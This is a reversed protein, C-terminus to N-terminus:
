NGNKLEKLVIKPNEDPKLEIFASNLWERCVVNYDTVIFAGHEDEHSISLRHKKCVTDIESLFVDVKNCKTYECTVMNYRNM